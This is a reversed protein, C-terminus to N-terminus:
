AFHGIVHFCGLYEIPSRGSWHSDCMSSWRGRLCHFDGTGVFVLREIAAVIGVFAGWESAAWVYVHCARLCCIASQRLRESRHPNSREEWGHMCYRMVETIGGTAGEEVGESMRRGYEGGGMLMEELLECM